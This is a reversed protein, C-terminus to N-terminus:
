SCWSYCRRCLIKTLVYIIPMYCTKGEVLTNILEYNLKDVKNVFPNLVQEYFLDNAEQFIYFDSKQNNLIEFCANSDGKNLFVNWTMISFKEKNENEFSCSFFPLIIFLLHLMFYIKVKKERM